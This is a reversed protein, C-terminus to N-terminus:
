FNLELQGEEPITQVENIKNAFYYMGDKKLVTDCGIWEKYEQVFEEKINTERLVRKIIYLSDQFNVIQKVLNFM